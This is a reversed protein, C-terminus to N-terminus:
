GDVQLGCFGEPDFDRRREQGTGVRHDIVGGLTVQSMSMPSTVLPCTLPQPADASWPRMIASPPPDFRIRV